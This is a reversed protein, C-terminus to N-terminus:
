TFFGQLHGAVAKAQTSMHLHHKGPLRCIELRTLKKRLFQLDTDVDMVGGEAVFLKVEASLYSLFTEIHAQSLKLESPSLLKYDYSWYYGQDSELVGRRALACADETNLATAGRERSAVADDFSQYYHVPRRNLAMLNVVSSALQAPAEIIEHPEPVLAEIAVLQKIREPFTAALITSVIAGRSHGLLSFSKWGLQETVAIVEPIDQWINYAGLHNRHYSHGHGALDLTLLDVGQLQEALFQFSACNDMWGHLALVRAAGPTGWRQGSILNGAVDFEVESPTM